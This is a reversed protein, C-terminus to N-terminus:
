IEEHDGLTEKVLQSMDLSMTDEVQEMDNGPPESVENHTKLPECSRLFSM